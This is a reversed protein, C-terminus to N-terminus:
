LKHYQYGYQYGSLGPIASPADYTRSSTPPSSNLAHSQYFIGHVYFPLFCTCQGELLRLITLSYSCGAVGKTAQAGAIITPTCFALLMLQVKPQQFTAGQQHPHAFSIREALLNQSCTRMHKGLLLLACAITCNHVNSHKSKLKPPQAVIIVQTCEWITSM